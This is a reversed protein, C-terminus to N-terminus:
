KSTSSEVGLVEKKVGVLSLGLTQQRQGNALVVLERRHCKSINGVNCGVDKGALALVAEVVPVAALHHDNSARHQASSILESLRGALGQALLERKLVDRLPLSLPDQRCLRVGVVRLLFVKELVVAKDALALGVVDRGRSEVVDGAGVRGLRVIEELQIRSLQAGLLLDLGL